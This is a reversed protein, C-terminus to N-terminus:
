EGEPGVRVELNEREAIEDLGAEWDPKVGPPVAVLATMMFLPSGSVPAQRTDTEASEINIGLGSLYRAVEHVIGEHDAGQVEIRVSTWGAPPGSPPERTEAMSVRYGDEVFTSLVREFPETRGEPLTALMLIAFEGGLRAMRSTGVSGGHEVLFRSVREVVGVRDPGTLTLIFSRNM